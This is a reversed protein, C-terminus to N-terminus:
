ELEMILDAIRSRVEDMDENVFHNDTKPKPNARLRIPDEYSGRNLCEQKLKEFKAAVCPAKPSSAKDKLREELTNIYCRDLYGECIAELAITSLFNM